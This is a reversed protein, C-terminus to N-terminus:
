KTLYKVAIQTRHDLGTKELIVSIYNRVTGNSIYLKDAIEQNSLGKAILKVIDNERETLLTFISSAGSRGVRERVYKLIDDQFVTGGTSVTRISNFIMEAPSNKLIYGSVGSKLAKIIFDEEDFTTLLLPSCLSEKIMFGAAEIGDMVPMRIDLLAVDTKYSRSLAVAEKGNAAIGIINFDSQSEILMKLGDRILADDDAILINIM